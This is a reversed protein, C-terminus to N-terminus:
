LPDQYLHHQSIYAAVAPPVLHELGCGQQVAGRIETSSVPLYPIDLVMSRAGMNELEEAHRHLRQMGELGESRPSVCLTALSFIEEPEKWQLLTLFMDEGMLLYFADKPFKQKLQFLTLVTYSDSKRRIELDSVQYGLPEAALRCMAFRHRASALQLTQKHTPRKTPIFIVTDLSLRRSFEKALALHGNHIPNFTGGM